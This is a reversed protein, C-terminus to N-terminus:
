ASRQASREDARAIRVARCLARTRGGDDGGGLRLFRTDLGTTDCEVSVRGVTEPQSALFADLAEVDGALRERPHLLGIWGPGLVSRAISRANGGTGDWRYFLFGARRARVVDRVRAYRTFLCLVRAGHAKAQKLHRLAGAGPEDDIM